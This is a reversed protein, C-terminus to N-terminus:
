PRRRRSTHLRAGLLLGTGLLVLSAPEPNVIPNSGPQITSIAFLEPAATPAGYFLAVGNGRVFYGEPLLTDDMGQYFEPIDLGTESHKFIPGNEFQGPPGVAVLTAYDIIPAASSSRAILITAFLSVSLTVRSVRLM